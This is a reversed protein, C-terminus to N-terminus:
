LARICISQGKEITHENTFMPIKLEIKVPQAAKKMAGMKKDRQSTSTVCLPIEVSLDKCALAIADEPKEVKLPATAVAHVTFM